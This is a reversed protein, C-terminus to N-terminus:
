SVQATSQFMGMRGRLVHSRAGMAPTAVLPLCVFTLPVLLAAGSGVITARAPLTAAASCWPADMSAAM